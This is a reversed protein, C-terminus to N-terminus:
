LKSQLQKHIERAEASKEFIWTVSPKNKLQLVVAFCGDIREYSAKEVFALEVKSFGRCEVYGNEIKLTSM